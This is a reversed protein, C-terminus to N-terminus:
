RKMELECLDIRLKMPQCFSSGLAVGETTEFRLFMAAEQAKRVGRCVHVLAPLLLKILAAICTVYNNGTYEIDGAVRCDPGGTEIIQISKSDIGLVNVIL